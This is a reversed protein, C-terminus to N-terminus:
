RLQNLYNQDVQVGLEQAKLASQLASSKDTKQLYVFSKNLYFAGQKPNIAIARDFEALAKDHNKLNLYCLGLTNIIDADNPKFELYKECDSIAANFEGRQYYVYGRNSLAIAHDPKLEIAKNLDVLAEDLQGKAGKAAGRNALSQYFNPNLDVSKNYDIMAKDIEGRDFYIKGRNNYTLYGEPNYQIALDYCQLAKDNKNISRYYHGLNNHALAATPYKEIVNEWLPINNMWTSRQKNTILLLVVFYVVLFIYLAIKFPKFNEILYEIFRAYVIFLGLYAIYTFREALFGQGAGVVQLMFVINVIFFGLGFALYKYKRFTFVSIFAIAIAPIMSLYFLTSIKEPYPHLASLNFPLISKIIYVMFSYSGIFLREAFSFTETTELSGFEKLFFVGALGTILSGAFYPVKEAITKFDFKRGFWYDVLLISLPLSVAQIKSLLSLVFAVMSLAFFVWKKKLIYEIYFLLSLLYFFGFLVDKRETVWAVSEVRFPHIGFLLTVLFTVMLSLGMRKLIIFVLITCALHLLVNNLHLLWPDGDTLQYDIAMSLNSLPNYNGNVRDTFIGKVNFNTVNRNEYINIDDDWNTFEYKVSPIFVAFTVALAIISGALWQNFSTKSKTEFRKGGIDGKVQGRGKGEGRGKSKM